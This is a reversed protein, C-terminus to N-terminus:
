ETPQNNSQKDKDVYKDVDKKIMKNILKPAGFGIVASLTALNLWFLVSGITKSKGSLEKLKRTPPILKNLLNKECNKDIIDTKLFHDSLKGFLSGILLDGGFFATLSIVARTVNDKVETQNRSAATLGIYTGLAMMFLSTRSMFIGDNYDFKDAHKKIFNNFKNINNARLGKRLLLPSATLLALIGIFAAKRFNESKKYKQARKEVIKKNAMKFEASFGEQKTKKKTHWNNYFGISGLVGTTFLFDFSLVSIKADILKQRLKEYDNGSNKLLENLDIKEEKIPQKKILKYYLKKLPNVFSKKALEKLGEETGKANKLYKNSLRIAQYEKSAFKQTLRVLYRIALKNTLPLTIFPSAYGILWGIGARNFREKRETSNNAMTIMPVDLSADLVAKNLLVREDLFVASSILPSMTFSPSNLKTKAIQMTISFGFM